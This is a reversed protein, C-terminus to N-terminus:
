RGSNECVSSKVSDGLALPLAKGPHSFGEPERRPLVGVWGKLPYDGEQSRSM